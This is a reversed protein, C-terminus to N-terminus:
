FSFPIDVQVIKYSSKKMPDDLPFAFAIGPRLWKGKSVQFHFRPGVAVTTTDRTFPAAAVAKPTSLWRQHRIEAGISIAPILFYGAHLGMTLNTRSSDPQDVSGRVRTLQFLTAEAQATFGGSVFAFDVGPIVTFDNVAFMANDMASRAPIGATRALKADADPHDGGGSGIPVTVGLFFALRLEKSLDLAYTAGLIPNLFGSGSPAPEPASNSVTGLRVIPALGKIVKYSFSLIPVATFGSHHTAPDEYFAFATDLRLTTAAGAPRLQFPLSYPAPPPPPADPPPTATEPESTAAPPASEQALATTALCLSTVTTFTSVLLPFRLM